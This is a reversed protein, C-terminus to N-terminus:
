RCTAMLAKERHASLPNENKKRDELNRRAICASDKQTQLVGSSGILCFEASTSTVTQKHRWGRERFYIRLVYSGGAMLAAPREEYVKASSYGKFLEVEEYNFGSSFVIRWIVQFCRSGYRQCLSIENVEIDNTDAILPALSAIVRGERVMVPVTPPLKSTTWGAPIWIMLLLSLFLARKM